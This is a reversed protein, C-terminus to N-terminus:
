TILTGFRFVTLLFLDATPMICHLQCRLPKGGTMVGPVRLPLCLEIYGADFLFRLYVSFSAILSM